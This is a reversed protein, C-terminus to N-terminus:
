ILHTYNKFITIIQAHLILHEQTKVPTYYINCIIDKKCLYIYNLNQIKNIVFISM